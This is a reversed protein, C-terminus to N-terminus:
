ILSDVIISGLVYTLLLAAFAVGCLVLTIFGRVFVESLEVNLEGKTEWKGLGYIIALPIAVVLLGIIFKLVIM